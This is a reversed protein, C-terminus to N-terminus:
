CWSEPLDHSNGRAAHIRDLIEEGPKLVPVDHRDLEYAHALFYTKCVLHLIFWSHSVWQASHSHAHVTHALGIWGM